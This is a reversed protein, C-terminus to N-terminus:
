GSRKPNRSNGGKSVRFLREYEAVGLYFPGEAECGLSLARLRDRQNIVANGVVTLVKLCTKQSVILRRGLRGM